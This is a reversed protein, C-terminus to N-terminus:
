KRVIPVVKSWPRDFHREWIIEGATYLFSDRSIWTIPLPNLTEDRVLVKRIPRRSPILMELRTKDGDVVVYTIVTGDPKWGPARYRNEGPLLMVPSGGIQQTYLGPHERNEAVYIIRSGDASVAPQWEDGSDTTILKFLLSETDLEWIGYSGGRNSSMLLRKSDPLWVPSRHDYNGFTIKRRQTNSKNIVMIQHISGEAVQYAIHQGNPSVAACCAVEGPASLVVISGGRIPVLQIRNGQDVILETGSPMVAVSIERDAAASAPGVLALLSCLILLRTANM